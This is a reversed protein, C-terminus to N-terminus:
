NGGVRDLDEPMVTSCDTPPYGTDPETARLIQPLLFAAAAATAVVAARSAWRSVPYTHEAM